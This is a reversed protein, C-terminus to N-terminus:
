QQNFWEIRGEGDLLLVGNPSAHLAALFDQLKQEQGQVQQQKVRQLRCIRQVVERWPGRLEPAAYPDADARLWRMVQMMRQLIWGVVCWGVVWAAVAAGWGGWLWWGLAAVACQLSFFFFIRWAM